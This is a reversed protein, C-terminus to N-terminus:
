TSHGQLKLPTVVWINRIGFPLEWALYWHFIGMCYNIQKLNDQLFVIGQQELLAPGGRSFAADLPLLTILSLILILLGHRQSPPLFCLRSLLTRLVAPNRGALDKWPQSDPTGLSSMSLPSFLFHSHSRSYSIHILFPYLHLYAVAYFKLWYCRSLFKMTLAVVEFHFNVSHAVKDAWVNWSRTPILFQLGRCSIWKWQTVNVPGWATPFSGGLLQSSIPRALPPMQQSESLFVVPGRLSLWHVSSLLDSDARPSFIWKMRVVCGRGRTLVWPWFIYESVVTLTMLELPKVSFWSQKERM